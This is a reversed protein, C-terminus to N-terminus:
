VHGLRKQAEVQVFRLLLICLVSKNKLLFLQVPCPCVIYKKLKIQLGQQLKGTPNRETDQVRKREKKEGKTASLLLWPTDM